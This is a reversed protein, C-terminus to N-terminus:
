IFAACAANLLPIATRMPSSYALCGLNFAQPAPNGVPKSGL